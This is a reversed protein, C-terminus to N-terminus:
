FSLAVHELALQPNINHRVAARAERVAQLTSLWRHASGSVDTEKQTTLEQCGLSVLLRDRAGREWVALIQGLVAAKNVEDKPLFEGILRFRAALSSALLQRVQEVRTEMEARWSRDQTWRLAWGPRGAAGAAIAQAEDAALGRMKLGAEMKEKSVLHFRLVQCRSAITPLVSESSSARLLFLVRGQPEELTKLLANAAAPHLRDAEEIWVGKRGSFSSMALRETVARVQDVRIQTKEKGTKEDSLREIAVFDPHTELATPDVQLFAALLARAVTSKGVGDPGVFLYAHALHEGRLARTLVERATEHGILSAFIGGSM